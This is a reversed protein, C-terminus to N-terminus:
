LNKMQSYAAARPKASSNPDPCLMLAYPFKRQGPEMEFGILVPLAVGELEFFQMVPEAEKVESDVTVFVFSRDDRMKKAVSYFAKFPAADLLLGSSPAVFILHNDIGSGFIIETTDSSFPVVTPIVEYRVFEEIDGNEMTGNYPLM